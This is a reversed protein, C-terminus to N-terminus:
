DQNYIFDLNNIEENLALTIEQMVDDMGGVSNDSNIMKPISTFEFLTGSKQNYQMAVPLVFTREQALLQSTTDSVKGLRILNPDQDDKKDTTGSPAVAMLQGGQKLKENFLLRMRRNNNKMIASMATNRLYSDTSETTPYSLFINTELLKLVDIAPVHQGDVAYTLFRAMENIIIGTEPRYGRRYLGGYIAAQALAVDILDSHNTVIILNNGARLLEGIRSIEQHEAEIDAVYQKMEPYHDPLAREALLDTINADNPEGSIHHKLDKPFDPSERSIVGLVGDSNDAHIKAWEMLNDIMEQKISDSSPERERM